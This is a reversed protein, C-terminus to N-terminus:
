LLEEVWLKGEEEPLTNRDLSGLNMNETENFDPEYVAGDGTENLNDSRELPHLRTIIYGVRQHTDRDYVLEVNIVKSDEMSIAAVAAVCLGALALVIALAIAGRCQGTSM